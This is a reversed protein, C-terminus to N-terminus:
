GERFGIPSVGGNYAGNKAAQANLRLRELHSSLSDEGRSAPAASHMNLGPSASATASPPTAASVEEHDGSHRRTAPLSKPGVGNSGNPSYPFDKRARVSERGANTASGAVSSYATPPPSGSIPSDM